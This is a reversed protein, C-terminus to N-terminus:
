NLAIFRVGGNGPADKISTVPPCCYPVLQYMPEVVFPLRVVLIAEFQVPPSLLLIFIICVPGFAQYTKERKVFVLSCQNLALLVLGERYGIM